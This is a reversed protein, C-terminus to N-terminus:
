REGGLLLVALVGVLILLVLEGLARRVDLPELNGIFWTPPASPERVAPGATHSGELGKFSEGPLAALKLAPPSM